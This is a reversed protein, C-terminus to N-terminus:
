VEPSVGSQLSHCKRCYRALALHGAPAFQHLNDRLGSALPAFKTRTTRAGVHSPPDFDQWLLFVGKNEGAPTLLAKCFVGKNKGTPTLLAKCIHPACLTPCVECGWGKKMQLKITINEKTCNKGDTSCKKKQRIPANRHSNEIPSTYRALVPPM